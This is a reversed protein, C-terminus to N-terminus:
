SMHVQRHHWFVVIKAVIIPLPFLCSGFKKLKSASGKARSMEAIAEGFFRSDLISFHKRLRTSYDIDDSDAEEDEVYLLTMAKAFSVSTNVIHFILPINRLDAATRLAQILCFNFAERIQIATKKQLINTNDHFERRRLCETQDKLVYLLSWVASQCSSATQKRYEYKKQEKNKKKLRSINIKYSNFACIMDHPTNMELTRRGNEVDRKNYKEFQQKQMLSPVSPEQEKEMRTRSSASASNVSRKTVSNITFVARQQLTKHFSKPTNDIHHFNLSNSGVFKFNTATFGQAPKITAIFQIIVVVVVMIQLMMRKQRKHLFVHQNKGHALHYGM